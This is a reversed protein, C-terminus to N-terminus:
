SFLAYRVIGKEQRDLEATVEPKQMTCTSCAFPTHIGNKMCSMDGGNIM